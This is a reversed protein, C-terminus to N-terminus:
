FPVGGDSGFPGCEMELAQSRQLPKSIPVRYRIEGKYETENRNRINSQVDTQSTRKLFVNNSQHQIGYNDCTTHAKQGALAVIEVFKSDFM